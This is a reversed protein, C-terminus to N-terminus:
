RLVPDYLLILRSLPSPAISGEWDKFRSTGIALVAASTLYISVLATSERYVVLGANIVSVFM